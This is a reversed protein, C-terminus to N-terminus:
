YIVCWTRYLITQTVAREKQNTQNFSWETNHNRQHNKQFPAREERDVLLLVLISLYTDDDEEGEGFYKTLFFRM